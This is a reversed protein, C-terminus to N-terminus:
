RRDNDPMCRTTVLVENNIVRPPIAVIESMARDIMESAFEPSAAFLVLCTQFRPSCPVSSAGNLVLTVADAGSFLTIFEHVIQSLGLGSGTPFCDNIADDHDCEGLVLLGDNALLEKVIQQQFSLSM